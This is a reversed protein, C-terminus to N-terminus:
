CYCNATAVQQAPRSGTWLRGTAEVTPSAALFDDLKRDGIVVAMMAGPLEWPSGHRAPAEGGDKGVSASPSSMSEVPRRSANAIEFAYTFRQQFKLTGQHTQSM